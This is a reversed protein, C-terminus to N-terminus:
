SQGDGGPLARDGASQARWSHALEQPDWIRLRIPPLRRLDRRWPSSDQLGRFVGISAQLIKSRGIGHVQCEIAVPTGVDRGAFVAQSDIYPRRAFVPLLVCSHQNPDM